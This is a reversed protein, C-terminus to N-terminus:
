KLLQYHKMFVAGGGIVAASAACLVASGGPLLSCATDPGCTRAAMMLNGPLLPTCFYCSCVLIVIVVMFAAAPQTSLGTFLQLWGLWVVAGFAALGGTVIVMGSGMGMSRCVTEIPVLIRQPVVSLYFFGVTLFLAEYLLASVAVWACKSLWWKRRDAFRLFVQRGYGRLDKAPYDGVSFFFYVHYLFWLLPLEFQSNETKTYPVAGRMLRLFIGGIGPEYGLLRLDATLIHALFFFLALAGTWRLRNQLIGNKVDYIVLRFFSKKRGM